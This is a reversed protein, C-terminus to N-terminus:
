EQVLPNQITSISTDEAEKDISTGLCVIHIHKCVTAHLIFDMCTCTFSHVCVKCTLCSLKCSCQLASNREVNYAKQKSVSEVRWLKGESLCQVNVSTLAEEANKHRKMIESLRHTMKGKQTKIIRDFVKDRAIKLLFHILKDVRRNQKKEMYCVKLVHHFSEVAMNTNVVSTIRYCPAWQEVRKIYERQFYESFSSVEEMTSLWSVFQQLRQRFSAEDGENLLARLCHYVEEQKAQGSIHRQIGKKWSRDIHWACILKKTHVTTFVGQWANYFNEADDSMFTNTHIDGCRDKLKLLGQRIAASDERNSIFWCVPIGEGFEDLVLITILFFDYVNTGHTSDMCVATSGFKTLMDRQFPTQLGIIFDEDSLDDISDPQKQGQQKYIIVPNEFEESECTIRMNEAVFLSVSTHDDSHLKVGELNYQHKINHIDQRCLLHKRTIVGELTEDRVSDFITSITVGDALKAAVIQRTSEPLPLHALLLEHTHYDCIEVHVQGDQHRKARIYAPCHTDLKSSGQIKLQRKGKGRAVYKGSRNCYYYYTVYDVSCREKPSSHLVFSSRSSTEYQEKWQM